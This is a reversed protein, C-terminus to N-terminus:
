FSESSDSSKQPSHFPVLKQNLTLDLVASFGAFYSSVTLFSILCVEGFVVLASGILYGGIDVCVCDLFGLVMLFGDVFWWFVMLFGDFFWWFVILFGGLFWWFWGLFWWSVVCVWWGFGWIKALRQAIRLFVLPVPAQPPTAGRPAQHPRRATFVDSFCEMNPSSPQSKLMNKFYSSKSM